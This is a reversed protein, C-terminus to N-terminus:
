LFFLFLASGFPLAKKISLKCLSIQQPIDAPFTGHVACGWYFDSCSLWRDNKCSAAYAPHV